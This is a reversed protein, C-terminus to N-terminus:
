ARAMATARTASTWPDVLLQDARRTRRADACSRGRRHTGATIAIPAVAQWVAPDVALLRAAEPVDERGILANTGIIELEKTTVRRADIPVPHKAIGVEVLRGGADSRPLRAAAVGADSGSVEFVLTPVFGLQSLATTLALPDGAHIAEVAGLRRAITLREAASTPRLSARV